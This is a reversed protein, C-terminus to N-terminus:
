RALLYTDGGLGQAEGLAEDAARVLSAADAGHLPSVAVGVSVSVAAEGGEVHTPRTLDHVIAGAVREACTADAVPSLMLGFRDDGTSALFDGPGAHPRLRRALEVRMREAIAEGHLETLAKPGGCEIALLAVGGDGSGDLAQGLRARLASERALGAPGTAVDGIGHGADGWDIRDVPIAAAGHAHEIVVERM